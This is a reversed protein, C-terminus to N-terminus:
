YLGVWAPIQKWSDSLQKDLSRYHPEFSGVLRWFRRSHNMHQAHCLEHIMLYRLLAPSLFLLCYNISLTGTTSHSGWCTKQGAVRMRKFSNGTEASLSRLRPEFHDKATAALWRKLAKVCAVDDSTKGSLCLIDGTLRYRVSKAGAQPRYTVGFNRDIASLNVRVPLRFPEPPHKEAFSARTNQIWAQNEAVFAQVDRARTRKPVVVEVRGRPYIKISLRRARGSERVSFGSLADPEDSESFLSLQQAASPV